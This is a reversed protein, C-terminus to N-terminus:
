SGNYTFKNKFTNSYYHQPNKKKKEKGKYYILQLIQPYTEELSFFEQWSWPKSNQQLLGVFPRFPRMGLLYLTTAEKGM